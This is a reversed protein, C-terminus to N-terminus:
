MTIGGRRAQEMKIRSPKEDSYHVVVEARRGGAYAVAEACAPSFRGEIGPARIIPTQGPQPQRRDKRCIRM